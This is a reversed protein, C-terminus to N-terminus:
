LRRLIYVTVAGLALGWVFGNIRGRRYGDAVATDLSQSVIGPLGEDGGDIVVDSPQDTRPTFGPDTLDFKRSPVSLGSRFQVSTSQGLRSANASLM